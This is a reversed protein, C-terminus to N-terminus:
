FNLIWMSFEANELIQTRKEKTILDNYSINESIIDTTFSNLSLSPFLLSWWFIYLIVIKKNM